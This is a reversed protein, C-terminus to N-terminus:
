ITATLLGSWRHEVTSSMGWSDEPISTIRVNDNIALTRKQADVFKMAKETLLFLTPDADELDTPPASINPFEVRLPYQECTEYNLHLEALKKGAEAFAHFDPAFPIRPIMKSLDNAFQECYSPAHLIGYVYDFIVDKTITDDTYHERFTRLATDSINDIRDPTDEIGLLSESANPEDSPKPYRYRPFCQAANNLGLDPMTDTMLVSFPKTSGIGPVCIVLNDSYGEPFILDLQYKCNVFTYDAYCNTKVFPRYVTKRIYSEDFETTRGRSLNNELERDWQVNATHRRAVDNATLEPNEELESIATLYDQTM